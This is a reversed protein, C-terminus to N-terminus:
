ATGGERGEKGEELELELWSKSKGKKKVQCKEISISISLDQFHVEGRKCAGQEGEASSMDGRM